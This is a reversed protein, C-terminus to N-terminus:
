TALLAGLGLAVVGLQLLLATELGAIGRLAALYGHRLGNSVSLVAGPGSSVAIVTSAMVFALWM